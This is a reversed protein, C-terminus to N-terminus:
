ILALTHLQTTQVSCSSYKTKQLVTRHHHELDATDYNPEERRIVVTMFRLNIFLYVTFSISCHVFTIWDFCLCLKTQWDTQCVFMLGTWVWHKLKFLVSTQRDSLVKNEGTMYMVYLSYCLLMCTHVSHSSLYCIYYDENYTKHFFSFCFVKALIKTIDPIHLAYCLSFM